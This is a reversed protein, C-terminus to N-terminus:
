SGCEGVFAFPFATDVGCSNVVSAYFLLGYLGLGFILGSVVVAFRHPLGLRAAILAPALLGILLALTISVATSGGALVWRATTGYERGNAVAYYMTLGTLVVLTAVACGTLAIAGAALPKV